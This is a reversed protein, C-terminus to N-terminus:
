EVERWKYYRKPDDRSVVAPTPSAPAPQTAVSAVQAPLPKDDGCLDLGVLGVFFDAIEIVEVDAAGQVFILGAHLGLRGYRRQNWGRSALDASEPGSIPAHGTYYLGGVYYREFPTDDEDRRTLIMISFPFDLARFKHVGFRRGVWGVGAAGDCTGIGIPVFPTLEVGANVPLSAGYGVHLSVTDQLDKARNSLYNEVGACGSAVGGTLLVAALVKATRNM